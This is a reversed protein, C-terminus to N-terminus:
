QCVLGPNPFVEMSTSLRKTDVKAAQKLSARRQRLAAKARSTRMCCSDLIDRMDNAMARGAAEIADKPTAVDDLSCTKYSSCVLTWVQSFLDNKVSDAAKTYLTKARDALAQDGAASPSRCTNLCRSSGPACKYCGNDAAKCYGNRAYQKRLALAKDVGEKM